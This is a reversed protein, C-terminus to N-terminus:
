DARSSTVAVALAVTTKTGVAVDNSHGGDDVNHQRAEDGRVCPAHPRVDRRFPRAVMAKWFIM